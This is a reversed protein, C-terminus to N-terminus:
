RYNKEEFSIKLKMLDGYCQEWHALADINARLDAPETEGGNSRVIETEKGAVDTSPLIKSISVQNVPNCNVPNAAARNQVESACLSNLNNANDAGVGGVPGGALSQGAQSDGLINRMEM